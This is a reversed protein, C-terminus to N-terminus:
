LNTADSHHLPLPSSSEGSEATLTKGVGPPGSLLMIMGKGKGQIVDDFTEKNAVQSETLALILEKHDEPLVLSDFAANNYGIEKVSGISFTLWKKNRLSYGKLSASCLLLQEKTLTAL